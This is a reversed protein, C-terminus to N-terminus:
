DLAFRPGTSLSMGPLTRSPPTELLCALTPWLAPRVAGNADIYQKSGLISVRALVTYDGPPIVVRGFQNPFNTSVSNAANIAEQIGQSASGVAYQGATHDDRSYVYDLMGWGEVGQRYRDRRGRRSGDAIWSRTFPAVLGAPCPSLTLVAQTGHMLAVNPEQPTWNYSNVVYRSGAEDNVSFSSPNHQTTTDPLQVINQNAGATPDQYVPKTNQASVQVSLLLVAFIREGRSMGRTLM